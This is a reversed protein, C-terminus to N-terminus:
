ERGTHRAIEDYLRRTREPDKYNVFVVVDPTRIMVYPPYGRDVFLRAAGVNRVDLSLGSIAPTPVEVSYPWSRVLVREASVRVVPPQMQVFGVLVPPLVIVAALIAGPIWGRGAGSAVAMESASSLREGGAERIARALAVSDDTGIRFRSGNAM